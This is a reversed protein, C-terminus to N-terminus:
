APMWKDRIRVYTTGDPQTTTPAGFLIAIRRLFRM